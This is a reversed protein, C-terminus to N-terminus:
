NCLKCVAQDSNKKDTSKPALSANIKTLLDQVLINHNDLVKVIQKEDLLSTYNEYCARNIAVLQNVHSSYKPLESAPKGGNRTTFKKMEHDILDLERLIKKKLNEEM